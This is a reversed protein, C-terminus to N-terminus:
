DPIRHDGGLLNEMTELVTLAALIACEEDVNTTCVHMKDLIEITQRITM